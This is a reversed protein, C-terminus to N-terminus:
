SKLQPLHRQEMASIQQMLQMQQQQLM